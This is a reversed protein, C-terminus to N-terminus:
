EWGSFEGAARGYDHVPVGTGARDPSSDLKFGLMGLVDIGYGVTGLTYGSRFDLLFSQAWEERKSQGRGVRFDRNLHLNQIELNFESDEVFGEEGAIMSHSRTALTRLIKKNNHM